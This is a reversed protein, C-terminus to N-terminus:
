ISLVVRGRFELGRGSALGLGDAEDPTPGLWRPPVSCQCSGQALPPQFAVNWLGRASPARTVRFQWLSPRKCRTDVNFVNVGM